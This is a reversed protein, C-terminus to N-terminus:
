EGYPRYKILEFKVTDKTVLYETSTLRKTARTKQMIGSKSDNLVLKQAEIWRFTKLGMHIWEAGKGNSERIVQSCAHPLKIKGEHLLRFLDDLGNADLESVVFDWAEGHLHQSTKSGGVSANKAAPRYGSTVTVPKGLFDRIVQLNEALMKANAQKAVDLDDWDVGNTIKKDKSTDFNDTLKM